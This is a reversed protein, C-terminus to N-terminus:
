GASAMAQARGEARAQEILRDLRARRARAARRLAWGALVLALLVLLHPLPLAWATGALTVDSPAPVEQGGQAVSAGVVVEVDYPGVPWIGPVTVSVERRGGPLVEVPEGAPASAATGGLAASARVQSTARLAVTGDNVVSYRVTLEGRGLLGPEPAFSADLLEADMSAAVAGPTRLNVRVGVRSEVRMEGGSLVSAAVGAPHDGPLADAPSAVEFPVVETEGPGVVVESPVTIWAGGDVAPVSSPRMDFSGRETLYGDNASLAFTVDNTSHNTVAVRETAREGPELELDVVRRGDPGSADAPVVSWTIRDDDGAGAPPQAIPLPAAPALAAAPASTAVLVAAALVVVARATRPVYM